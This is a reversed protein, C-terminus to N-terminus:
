ATQPIGSITERAPSIGNLSNGTYYKHPIASIMKRYPLIGNLVNATYYKNNRSINSYRKLRKRYVM